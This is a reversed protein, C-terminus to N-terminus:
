KPQKVIEVVFTLNIWREARKPGSACKVYPGQLDLVTCDTQQPMRDAAVQRYILTVKDDEALPVGEPTTQATVGTGRVAYGAIVGVVLSLASLQKVVVVEKTSRM